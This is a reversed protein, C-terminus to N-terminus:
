FRYSVGLNVANTVLDTSLSGGGGLQIQNTSYTAQYETFLAWRDNVDIKAGVTVRVAAGTLQYGLTRFGTTTTADVHPIALGFGAGLYPTVRGVGNPWSKIVNATLINHGDSLELRTFGLAARDTASAYAKAHTVEVGLALDSRTWWMARLGYYPPNSLSKGDWTVLADLAAGTGPYTGSVQSDPASQAGGYVSLEWQAAAPAAIGIWLLVAIIWGRM